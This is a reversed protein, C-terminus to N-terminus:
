QTIKKIELLIFIETELQFFSFYKFHNTNKELETANKEGNKTNEELKTM